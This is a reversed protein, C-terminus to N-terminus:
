DGAVESPAASKSLPQFEAHLLIVLQELQSHRDDDNLGWFYRSLIGKVDSLSEPAAIFEAAPVQAGDTEGYGPRPQGVQSSTSTETVPKPKPVAVKKYPLLLGERRAYKEIWRYATAKPIHNEQLWAIFGNGRRGPSHLAGCLKYLLPALAEKCRQRQKWFRVIEAKLDEEQAASLIITPVSSTHPIIGLDRRVQRMLREPSPRKRPVPLNSARTLLEGKPHDDTVKTDTAPNVVEGRPDLTPVLTFSHAPVMPVGVGTEQRNSIGEKPIPVATAQDISGSLCGPKTNQNMSLSQSAGILYEQRRKGKLMSLVWVRALATVWM